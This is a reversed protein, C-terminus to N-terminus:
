PQSFWLLQFDSLNEDVMVNLFFFTMTPLFSFYTVIQCIKAQGHRKQGFTSFIIREIFNKNTFNKKMFSKKLWSMESQVKGGTIPPTWAAGASILLWFKRWGGQKQFNKWGHSKQFFFSMKWFFTMTTSFWLLRFDSLSEDVMVNLFFFTMTPLFSFYTVIQCIKAWGHRKQGFKSFIIGEIFNKNMFNKKLWSMESQAKSNRFIKGSARITFKTM